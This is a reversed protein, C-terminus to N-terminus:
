FLGLLGRYYAVFLIGENILSCSKQAEGQMEISSIQEKTKKGKEKGRRRSHALFYGQM